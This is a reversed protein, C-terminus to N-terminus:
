AGKQLLAALRELIRKREAEKLFDLALIDHTKIGELALLAILSLDPDAASARLHDVVRRHHARVPDFLSPDEVFAALAGEQARPRKVDCVKRSVHVLATAVANPSPATLEAEVIAKETLSLHHEVLARMLSKKTPFHYLLGGKSVGAQRAIAELSLHGAGSKETVALVANLIRDRANPRQRKAPAHTGAKHRVPGAPGRVKERMNM